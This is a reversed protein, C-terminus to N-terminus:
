AASSSPYLLHALYYSRLERSKRKLSDLLLSENTKTYEDQVDDPLKFYYTSLGKTFREHVVGNNRLRLSSVSGTISLSISSQLSLLSERKIRIPVAIKGDKINLILQGVIKSNFLDFKKSKIEGNSKAISNWNNITWHIESVRQYKSHIVILSEMNYTNFERSQKVTLNNQNLNDCLYQECTKKLEQMGYKDSLVLLEMVIGKLDNILCEDKIDYDQNQDDDEMNVNYCVTGKPAHFRNCGLIGHQSYKNEAIAQCNTKDLNDCLYKECAKNLEQMVYKDALVLLEM